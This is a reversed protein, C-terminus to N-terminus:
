TFGNSKILFWLQPSLIGPHKMLVQSSRKRVIYMVVNEHKSRRKFEIESDGYYRWSFGNDPIRGARFDSEDIDASISCAKGEHVEAGTPTDYKLLVYLRARLKYLSGTPVEPGSQTAM